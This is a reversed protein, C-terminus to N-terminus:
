SPPVKNLRRLSLRQPQKKHKQSSTQKIKLVFSKRNIAHYKTASLDAVSDYTTLRLCLILASLLGIFGCHVVAVTSETKNAAESLRMLSAKVFPPLQAAEYGEIKEVDIIQNWGEFDKPLLNKKYDDDMKAAALLSAL